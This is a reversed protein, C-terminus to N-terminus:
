KKNDNMVKPKTRKLSDTELTVLNSDLYDQCEINLFTVTFNVIALAISLVISIIFSAFSILSITSSSNIISPSHLLYISVVKVVLAVSLIVTYYLKINKSVIKDCTGVLLNVLLLPIVFVSVYMASLCAFMSTALIINSFLKVKKYDTNALRYLLFFKTVFSIALLFSLLLFGLTNTSVFNIIKDMLVTHPRSVQTLLSLFVLSTLFLYTFLLFDNLKSSFNGESLVSHSSGNSGTALTLHSDFDVFTDSSSKMKLDKYTLILSCLVSSYLSVLIISYLVSTLSTSLTLASLLSSVTLMVVSIILSVKLNM